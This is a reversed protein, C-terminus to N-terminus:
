LFHPYERTIITTRVFITRKFSSIPLRNGRSFSPTLFFAIEMDLITEEGGLYLVQTKTKKQKVKFLTLLTAKM